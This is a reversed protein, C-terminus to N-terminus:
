SYNESEDYKKQPEAFFKSLLLGALGCYIILSLAATFAIKRLEVCGPNLLCSGLLIASLLVGTYVVFDRTKVPNRRFMLYGGSALLISYVLAVLNLTAIM